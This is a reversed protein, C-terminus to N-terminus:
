RVLPVAHHFDHRIDKNTPNLHSSGTDKTSQRSPPPAPSIPSPCILSSRQGDHVGNAHARGSSSRPSPLGVPTQYKKDASKTIGIWGWRRGSRRHRSARNSLDSALRSRLRLNTQPQPLIGREPPLKAPWCNTSTTQLRVLRCDGISTDELASGFNGTLGDSTATTGRVIIRDVRGCGPFNTKPSGFFLKAVSDEGFMPCQDAATNRPEALGPWCIACRVITGIAVVRPASAEIM